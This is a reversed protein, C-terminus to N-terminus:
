RRMVKHKLLHRNLGALYYVEIKHQMSIGDEYLSGILASVVSEVSIVRSRKKIL